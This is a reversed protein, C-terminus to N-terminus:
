ATIFAFQSTLSASNELSVEGGLSLINTIDDVLTEETKYDYIIINEIAVQPVGHSWSQTYMTTESEPDQIIDILEYVVQNADLISLLRICYPCYSKSYIKM